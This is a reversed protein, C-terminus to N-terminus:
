GCNRGASFKLGLVVVMMKLVKENWSGHKCSHLKIVALDYVERDKRLKDM